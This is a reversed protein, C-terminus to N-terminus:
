YAIHIAKPLVEITISNGKFVNGDIQFKGEKKTKISIKKGQFTKIAKKFKFFDRIPRPNFALINLLGDNPFIQNGIFPKTIKLHGLPLINFSIITKAIIMERKGDVSLKYPKGRHIFITKLVTWLYALAGIKRKLSRTTKRMVLTDYGCGAAIMGYYKKNIRMADLPKGKGKLGKIL